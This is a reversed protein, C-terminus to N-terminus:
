KSAVTMNVGSTLVFFFFCPMLAHFCMLAYFDRWSVLYVICLSLSCYVPSILIFSTICTSVDAPPFEVGVLSIAIDMEMSVGNIVMPRNYERLTQYHMTM